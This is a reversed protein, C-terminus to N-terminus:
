AAEAEIARLRSLSGSTASSSLQIAPEVDFLPAAAINVAIWDALDSESVRWRNRLKAARLEGALIARYVAKKSLQLRDAVDEPTLLRDTM